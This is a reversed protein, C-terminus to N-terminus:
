FIYLSIIEFENEKSLFVNSEYTLFASFNNKISSKSAQVGLKRLLAVILVVEVLCKTSVEIAANDKFTM